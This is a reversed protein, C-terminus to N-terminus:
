TIMFLSIGRANCIPSLIIKIIKENNRVTSDENAPQFIPPSMANSINIVFKIVEAVKLRINWEARQATILAPVTIHIM